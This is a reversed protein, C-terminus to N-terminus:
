EKRIKFIEDMGPLACFKEIILDFLEKKTM